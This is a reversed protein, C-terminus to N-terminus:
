KPPVLTDWGEIWESIEPLKNKIKRKEVYLKALIYFIFGLSKASKNNGPIIFDVNMTYNNTDCIAMVQIKIRKADDLAASDTWPDCILLLERELFDDLNPNTLIGAPYKKVFAKIGTAQSFLEAAKAGAERKCVVVVDEPTYKALFDGAERLKEDLLSTNFVALSDARRKYVYPKMDPTIARTGLHMSSKLYDEIPVLTDKKEEEEKVKKTLDTEDTKIKKALAEAKEKIKTLKAEKEEDIKEAIKKKAPSKNVVDEIIEEAKESGESKKETVGEAAKDVNELMTDKKKRSM